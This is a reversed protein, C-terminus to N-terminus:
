KKRPRGTPRRGDPRWEWCGRAVREENMREIHGLWRLHAVDIRNLIPCVGVEERVEINRVRDRRTKGVMARIPRMEAAQIRSRDAATLVWSESGHILIPTLVTNFIVRKAELPVHRDKIIPYVAGM